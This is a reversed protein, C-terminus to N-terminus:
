ENGLASAVGRGQLNRRDGSSSSFTRCPLRLSIDEGDGGPLRPLRPTPQRSSEMSCCASDPLGNSLLCVTPLRSLCHDRIAPPLCPCSHFSSFSGFPPDSPSQPSGLHHLGRAPPVTLSSAPPHGTVSWRSGPGSWPGQPKGLPGVPAAPPCSCPLAFCIRILFTPFAAM